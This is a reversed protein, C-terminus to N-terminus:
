LLNDEKNLFLKILEKLEMPKYKHYISACIFSVFTSTFIGGKDFTIVDFIYLIMAIIYVWLISISIYALIYQFYKIM